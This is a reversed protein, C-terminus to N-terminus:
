NQKEKKCILETENIYEITKRNERKSIEAIM